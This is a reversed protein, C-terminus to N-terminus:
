NQKLFIKREKFLLFFIGLDLLWYFFSFNEVKAMIDLFVAMKSQKLFNEFSFGFESLL